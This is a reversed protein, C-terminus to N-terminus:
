WIHRPFFNSAQPEVFQKWSRLRLLRHQSDSMEDTIDQM